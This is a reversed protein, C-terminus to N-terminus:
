KKSILFINWGTMVLVVILWVLMWVAEPIFIFIDSFKAIDSSPGVNFDEIIYLLSAIALFWLVISDYITKKAAFMIWAAWLVLLLTSVLSSFWFLATFLMIIWLIYLIIESYKQKKFAIYLLINGLIASWIYGGLLIISRIWGSTVAHGSGNSNIQIEIVWGWTLIAAFGHGFEHLFTVLLNVPYIINDGYPILYKLLLYIVILVALISFNNQKKM